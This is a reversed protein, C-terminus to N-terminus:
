ASVSSIYWMYQVKCFIQFSLYLSLCFHSSRNFILVVMKFDLNGLEIVHISGLINPYIQFGSIECPNYNESHFEILYQGYSVYEWWIPWLNIPNWFNVAIIKQIQILYPCPVSCFILRSIFCMSKWYSSCKSSEFNWIMPKSYWM